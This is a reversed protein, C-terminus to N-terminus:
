LCHRRLLSLFEGDDASASSSILDHVPVAVSGLCTDSMIGDCMVKFSVTASESSDYVVLSLDILVQHSCFLTTNM